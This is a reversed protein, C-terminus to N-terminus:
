AKSSKLSSQQSIPQFALLHSRIQTISPHMKHMCFVAILILACVKVILIVTIEKTLAITLRKTRFNQM